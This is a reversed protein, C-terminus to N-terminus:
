SSHLVNRGFSGIYNGPPNFEMVVYYRVSGRSIGSPVSAAGIATTSVWVVQTFHLAQMATNTGYSYNSVEAYWLNVANRTCNNPGGACGGWFAAINEGYKGKSHFLGTNQTALHTAWDIAFSELSADWTVPPAGHNARLANVQTVVDSRWDARGFAFLGLLTFLSVSLAFFSM